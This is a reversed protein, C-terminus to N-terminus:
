HLSKQHPLHGEFYAIIRYLRTRTLRSRTYTLATISFFTQSVRYLGENVALNKKRGLCTNWRGSRTCMSVLFSIIDWCLSICITVLIIYLTTVIMVSIPDSEDFYWSIFGTCQTDNQTSNDSTSNNYSLEGSTTNATDSYYPIGILM